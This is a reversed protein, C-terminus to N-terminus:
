KQARGTAGLIAGFLVWAILAAVSALPGLSYMMLTAQMPDLKAPFPSAPEIIGLLPMVVVGAALWLVAGYIVGTGISTRVLKARELLFFLGIAVVLGAVVIVWGAWFGSDHGAEPIKGFIARNVMAATGLTPFGLVPCVTLWGLWTLLAAAGALARGVEHNHTGRNVTDLSDM